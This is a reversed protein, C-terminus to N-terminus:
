IMRAEPLHLTAWLFGVLERAIATIVIPKLKGRACLRRYRTCLRHEAQHAIRLVAVPQGERRRRAVLGLAPRHRFHWAAQILLRRAFRNGAKTIGGRRQREGTSYESPVLGVFAMLARPHAFREIDHLEALLAMATLTDIGRFCRLAAVAPQYPAEEALAAIAADFESLRAMVQALALLADRMVHADAPHTWSLQELWRHHRQTWHRGSTFTLGRRLLLKSLRQRIRQLDQRADDRARCLDRVAEAAPTPPHVETLLGARLLEALKQADRRDTKVRDGPKRPILSPAIVRCRVRGGTLQRQLAYGSPGAEYCCEIPGPAARELKRKLREVDTTTAPCTWQVATGTGSILMAIQLERKHADIGVFTSAESM